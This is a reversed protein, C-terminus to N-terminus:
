ASCFSSAYAAAEPRAKSAHFSRRVIRCVAVPAFAAPLERRGAQRGQMGPMAAQRRSASAAHRPGARAPRFESAGRHWGPPLRVASLALGQWATDSDAAPVLHPAKAGVLAPCPRAGVLGSLEVVQRRSWNEAM